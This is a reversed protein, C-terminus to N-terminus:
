FYYGPRVKPMHQRSYKHQPGGQRISDLKERWGKGMFLEVELGWKILLQLLEELGQCFVQLTLLLLSPRIDTPRVSVFLQQMCHHVSVGPASLTLSDLYPSCTMGSCIMTDVWSTWAAAADLNGASVYADPENCNYTACAAQNIDNAWGPRISVLQNQRCIHSIGGGGAFLEMVYLVQQLSAFCCLSSLVSQDAADSLVFQLM